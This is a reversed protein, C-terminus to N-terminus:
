QYFLFPSFFSFCVWLFTNGRRKWDYKGFWIFMRKFKRTLFENESWFFFLYRKASFVNEKRRKGKHQREKKKETANKKTKEFKHNTVLKRKGKKEKGKKLTCGPLHIFCCPFTFRPWSSEKITTRTWKKKEKREIYKKRNEKNNQFLFSLNHSQNIILINWKKKVEFNIRKKNSVFSSCTQTQPCKEAGKAELGLSPPIWTSRRLYFWLKFSIRRPRTTTKIMM